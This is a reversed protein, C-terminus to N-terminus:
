VNKSLTYYIINIVTLIFFLPIFVKREYSYFSTNFTPYVNKILIPSGLLFGLINAIPFIKIGVLDYFFYIITFYVIITISFLKYDVIHNAMNSIMATLGAWRAFFTAYSFLIILEVSGLQVNSKLLSLIVDGVTVLLIYGIFLVAYSIYQIKLLAINFNTLDGRSRLTILYPLKAYFTTVTFKEIIDFLRKTFLFMASMSPSFLQSVILVSLHKIM